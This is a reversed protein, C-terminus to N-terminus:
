RQMSVEFRYPGSRVVVSNRDIQEITFGDVEQGLQYLKNNIMCAQHAKGQLVSQLRLGGAAAATAQREEERRRRAAAESENEPRASPALRRFPNTRLATLPVQTRTQDERFRQVVKDTNQLMQRMLAVHEEGSALFANVTDAGSGVAAADASQPGKRFYMFWVVVLAVVVLGAMVMVQNNNAKKPATESTVFTPDSEGLDPAEDAGAKDQSEEQPIFNM